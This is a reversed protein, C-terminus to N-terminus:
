ATNAANSNTPSFTGTYPSPPTPGNALEIRAYNSVFSYTPDTDIYPNVGFAVRTTTGNSFNIYFAQVAACQVNNSSGPKVLQNYCGGDPVAVSPTIGFDFGKPQGSDTPMTVNAITQGSPWYTSGLLLTATQTQSGSTGKTIYTATIQYSGQNLGSTIQSITAQAYTSILNGIGSILPGNVTNYPGGYITSYYTPIIITFTNNTPDRYSTVSSIYYLSNIDNINWFSGEYSGCNKFVNGAVWQPYLDVNETMAFPTYDQYPSNVLYSTGNGGARNNWGIFSYGTRVLSNNNGSVNISTLRLYNTGSNSPVSGGTSDNNNYILPYSISPNPTWLAYLTISRGPMNFGTIAIPANGYNGTGDNITNWGIWTFGSRTVGSQGVIPVPQFRKYNTDSPISGGTGGSRNYSVVYNTGTTDYWQAYLTVSENYITFSSGPAYYAGMGSSATNWGAFTSGGYFLNGKGAVVITATNPSYQVTTPPDGGGIGASYIVSPYATWQAYLTTNSAPMLFKNGSTYLTGLGTTIDSVTNWGAFTFNTRTLPTPTGTNGTVTVEDNYNYTTTDSPVNGTADNANKAYTVTYDNITWQAYLRTNGTITFTSGIAYSTGGSGSPVTNWSSFSYGTNEFGTSPKVTVTSGTIYPSNNDTITGTANPYTVSNNDYGMTFTQKWNAYLTINALITYSAGFSYSTGLGDTQTNWTTFTYGTRTLQPTGTNGSLTVSSNYTGTQDGPPNGSADVANAAYSVTYTPTWQAVLTTNSAPMSFTDPNNYVTGSGGSITWGNFTYNTRILNGSNASVTVAAGAIYRNNNIPVTGGTSDPATYTVTYNSTWKAYLTTTSAPIVFSTGVAYSTGLGDAQTNWGDFVNDTKILNGTNGSITVSTNYAATQDGPATGTTSGNAQYTVSYTNVTWKAYLITNRGPMPITSGPPPVTNGGGDAFYAWNSFTYGTRSLNGTNGLITVTAGAIYPSSQDIPVTGNTNNNGDYTFTYVPRWRVYLVTNGNISFSTPPIYTTGGGNDQTNWGDFIFGPTGTTGPIALNGTNALVDVTTGALYSFTGNLPLTGTTAGSSDYRFTYIARWKAYLTTNATIPFQTGVAYSTGLGNAQSNWGNFDFGTKELTGTNGLVTVQTGATYRTNDTPTTGTTAGNATYTVAYTPTWIAYLTTNANIPFVQGITYLTGLGNPQSNWSNFIYNASTFGTSSKVTVSSGAKYPSDNDTITGTVGPYNVSNNIYTMTYTPTWKAYITTNGGPMPFQSGVAYSTGLGDAQTNWGDFVNNAKTLIAPTGINGLLTVQTGPTYRTTDTPVNGTGGNAGYTLTYTQTWNAVLTTNGVPMLFQQPNTYVTGTGGSITWGTFLFGSRTLPPSGSNTSVTVQTGPTYRTTDTPVSGAGGNATYTVTYSQTWNAVLTTDATIVFTQPNNYVTGTGGSITWGTFNFGSRTLPPFGSNTSVTVFTGATYRTTDTPVNGAGGNPTYTITFTPVWKAYLMRNATGMVFTQPNNYVTGTGDSNFTWGAFIFNTYTLPNVTPTQLVTVSSDTTYSSNDVPVSGTAANANKDYTVTYTPVWKAYLRTNEAPITYISGFLYSRGLGDVRTNWSTFTYGTRTLSGTNGQVTVTTNYNGSQNSPLDGATDLANKDYIVTYSNVSWQAYLTINDNIPFTDGSAYPTGGSGSAVTNWGYFTNGTNVLGTDSLVTVISGPLYPSSQDIVSGNAAVANKNYTVTYTTLTWQAYLIVPADPMTFSSGSSYSTGLGNAQTNWSSFTYNPKILNGTNGLVIVNSGATYPSSGDVPARGTTNTNGNYTVTYTPLVVPPFLSELLTKYSVYNYARRDIARGSRRRAPM